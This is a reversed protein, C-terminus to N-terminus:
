RCDAQWTQALEEPSWPWLGLCRSLGSLRVRDWVSALLGKLTPRGEHAILGLLVTVCDKWQRRSFCPRFLEPSYRLAPFLCLIPTPRTWRRSLPKGTYKM